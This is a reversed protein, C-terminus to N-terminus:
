KPSKVQVYYTRIQLLLQLLEIDILKTLVLSDTFEYDPILFLFM